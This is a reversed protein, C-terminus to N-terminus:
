QSLDFRAGTVVAAVTLGLGGGGGGGEREREVPISKNSTVSQYEEVTDMM